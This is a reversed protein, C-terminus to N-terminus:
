TNASRAGVIAFWFMAVGALIVGLATHNPEISRVYVLPGGAMVLSVLIHAIHPMRNADVIRKRWANLLLTGAPIFVIMLVEFIGINM